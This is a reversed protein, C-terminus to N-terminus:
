RLTQVFALVEEPHGVPKVKEFSKIVRGKSDIVFTTRNIGMYTKGLFRKQGYVGFKKCLAFEPDSLLVLEELGHKDCFKQKSKSDGGSVGVVTAGNAQFEKALKSFGRAELTCGPTNDKPYFFLVAYPKALTALPRVTGTRDPLSFDEAALSPGSPESAAIKKDAM